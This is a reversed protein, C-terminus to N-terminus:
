SAQLPLSSHAKVANVKYARNERDSKGENGDGVDEAEGVKRKKKKEPDEVICFRRLHLQPPQQSATSAEPKQIRDTDLQLPSPPIRYPM